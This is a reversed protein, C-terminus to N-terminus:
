VERVWEPTVGQGLMGAPLRQDGGIKSPSQTDIRNGDFSIHTGRWQLVMARIPTRAELLPM